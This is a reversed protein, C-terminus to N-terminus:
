IDSFTYTTKSLHPNEPSALINGKCLDGDFAEPHGQCEFCLGALKEYHFGKKGVISGDFYEGGYFQLCSCDTEVQMQLGSERSRLRAVTKFEEQEPNDLWYLDGHRQWLQPVFTAIQQVSNADNVAGRVSLVKGTYGMQEDTQFSHEALIQVEHEHTSRCDAGGLNFYSHHTLSIPTLESVTAATEVTFSNDSGITYRVTIESRGPYNNDGDDSILSLDIGVKDGDVFPEGAWIRTHLGNSGGHLHNGHDNQELQIDHGHYDLRGQSVRGAIRGVMAGFCPHDGAYRTKDKFGLVVDLPEQGKRPVQLETVIAGYSLISVRLGTVGTLTWESVESGSPWNEIRQAVVSPPTTMQIATYVNRGDLRPSFERM